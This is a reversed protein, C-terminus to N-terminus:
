STAIMLHKINVIHKSILINGNRIGFNCFYVCCQSFGWVGPMFEMFLHLQGDRQESGFYSVIREHRLKKLICIENNLAEM